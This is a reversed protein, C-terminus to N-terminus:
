PQMEVYPRRALLVGAAFGLGMFATLYLAALIKVRLPPALPTVDVLQELTVPEFQAEAGAAPSAVITIKHETGDWFNHTWNFTGDDSDASAAFVTKDDEIQVISVAYHVNRMPAGSADILHGVLTAPQSPTIAEPAEVSLQLTARGSSASATEVRQASRLREVTERADAMEAFVLVAVWSAAAVALMAVLAVSRAGEVRNVAGVARAALRSRMIVFGSLGGFVLLALLFIALNLLSSEKEAINVVFTKTTAAFAGPTLPSAQVTVHYAGRIPFIYKFTQRGTASLFRYKLLTIGEVRPVDTSLLWNTRPADMQFDIQVNPILAGEADKVEVIVEDPEIRGTPGGHPRIQEPPPSTTLTIQVDDSAAMTQAALFVVPLLGIPWFWSKFKM